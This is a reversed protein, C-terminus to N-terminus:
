KLDLISMIKQSQVIFNKKSVVYDRARKAKKLLEYYDQGLLNNIDNMIEDFENVRIFNLYEYYEEPIGPLMTTVTPTGSLMYEIIKSPFSYETYEQNIPRTNVLFDAKKQYELVTSNTQFGFYKVKDPYQQHYHIILDECEGKGFIWLEIKPDQISIVAKIFEIIGYKALLAGSYMFISGSHKNTVIDYHIDPIDSVGEIVIYPKKISVFRAMQRTLIVSADYSKLYCRSLNTIFSSLLTNSIGLSDLLLIHPLDTIVSVVKVNRSKGFILIPLSISLNLVDCIIFSQGNKNISRKWTRLLSLSGFLTHIRRFIRSKIPQIYNYVAGQYLDKKPINSIYERSPILSITNVNCNNAVFGKILLNNFKNAQYQPKSISQTFITDYVAVSCATSVYLVNM